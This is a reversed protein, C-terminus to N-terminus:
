EDDEGIAGREPLMVVGTGEDSEREQQKMAADIALRITSSDRVSAVVDRIAKTDLKDLIKITTESSGDGKSESAIYRYFQSPDEVADKLIGIVSSLVCLEDAYQEGQKEAAKKLATSLTGARFEQRQKVWHQAVSANSIARLSIKYKKAIARLSLDGSIYDARAKDYKIRRNRAM